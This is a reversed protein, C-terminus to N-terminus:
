AGVNITPETGYTVATGPIVYADSVLPVTQALATVPAIALAAVLLRIMKNKMFDKVL